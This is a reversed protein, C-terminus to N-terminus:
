EDYIKNLELWEFLKANKGKEKYSKDNILNKWYNFRKAKNIDSFILGANVDDSQKNNAFNNDKMIRCIARNYEYTFNKKRGNKDRIEIANNLEDIARECDEETPENKNIITYAIEAHVEDDTIDADTEIITDLIAVIKKALEGEILNAHAKRLSKAKDFAITKIQKSSSKMLSKLKNKSDDNLEFKIFEDIFSLTKADNVYKQEIEQIRQKNEIQETKLEEIDKMVKSTISM